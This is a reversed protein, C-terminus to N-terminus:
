RALLLFRARLKNSHKQPLPLGPLLLDQSPSMQVLCCSSLDPSSKQKDPVQSRVLTPCLYHPGNHPLYPIVLTTCKMSQNTSFPMSGTVQEKDMLTVRRPHIPLSGRVMKPEGFSLFLDHFFLLSLHASPQTYLAQQWLTCDAVIRKCVCM